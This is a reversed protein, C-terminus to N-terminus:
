RTALARRFWSVTNGAQAYVDFYADNASEPKAPNVIVGFEGLLKGPSTFIQFASSKGVNVVNKIKEVHFETQRLNSPMM